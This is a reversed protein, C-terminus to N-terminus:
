STAEALVKDIFRLHVRSVHDRQAVKVLEARKARLEDLSIELGCVGVFETGLAPSVSASWAEQLYDALEPM